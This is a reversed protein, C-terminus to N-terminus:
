GHGGPRVLIPVHARVALAIADSPRSDINFNKGDAKAVINGFFVDERLAVIEIRLIKANFLTFCIKSCTM